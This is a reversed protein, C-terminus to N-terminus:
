PRLDRSGVRATRAAHDIVVLGREPDRRRAAPRRAHLEQLAHQVQELLAAHGFRARAVHDRVEVARHLQAVADTDARGLDRIQARPDGGSERHEALRQGIAVPRQERDDLVDVQGVARAELHQAVRERHRGGPGLQQQQGGAGLARAGGDTSATISTPSRTPLSSRANIASRSPSADVGSLMAATIARAPPLGSNTSSSAWATRSAPRSPAGSMGALARSTTAARTSRSDGRALAASRNAATSPRRPGRRPEELLQQVSRRSSACGPVASSSSTSAPKSTRGSPEAALPSPSSTNARPSTRSTM